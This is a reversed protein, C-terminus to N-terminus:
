HEHSGHDHTGGADDLGVTSNGRPSVSVFFWGGRYRYLGRYEGGNERCHRQLADVLDRANTETIGVQEWEIPENESARALVDELNPREAVFSESLNCRIDTEDGTAPTARLVVPKEEGLGLATCGATAVLVAATVSNSLFRRRNM